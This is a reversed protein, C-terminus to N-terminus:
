DIVSVAPVFSTAIPICDTSSLDNSVAKIRITGLSTVELLVNSTVADSYSGTQWVHSVAPASELPIRGYDTGVQTANKFGGRLYVIDGIRKYMPREDASVATAGNQLIVDNWTGESLIASVKSDLQQIMTQISSIDAGIVSKYVVFEILQGVSAEATLVIKSSGDVTYQIGEIAKLGSIFVELVDSVPDFSSIGIPVESVAETVFYSAKLTIVNTSVTLEETLQSLFDEWSQRQREIYEEFDDTQRDYYQQYAEQYQTWLTSTDVQQILSTVWPCESSGRCDTIQADTISSTGSEVYVNALRYETVYDDSVVSPAVPDASAEGTRYVINGARVGNANDIQILVSDIRDNVSTNPPVTIVVSSTNEFWKKGCIAQGKKVTIKMGNSASVVQLDDSPTGQPTAFVGDAVVRSYPKNMDEAVYLRDHNVSNYFGSKVTFLQDAM